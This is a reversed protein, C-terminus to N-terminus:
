SSRVYSEWWTLCVWPWPLSGVQFGSAGKEVVLETMKAFNVKRRSHIHTQIPDAVKEEADIAPDIFVGKLGGRAASTRFGLYGAHYPKV